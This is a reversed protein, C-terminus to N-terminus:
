DENTRTTTPNRLSGGPRPPIFTPTGDYARLDSEEGVAEEAALMQMDEEIENHLRLIEEKADFSTRERFPAEENWRRNIDGSADMWANPLRRLLEQYVLKVEVTNALARIVEDSTTPNPEFTLAALVGVRQEGLRRYFALRARLIAEDLIALTDTASAPVGTLRLLQKLTALDAVFLPDTM